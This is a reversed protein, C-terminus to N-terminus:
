GESSAATSESPPTDAATSAPETGVIGSSAVVTDATSDATATLDTAGSSGVVVLNGEALKAGTVPTIEVYGDAALGPVITV